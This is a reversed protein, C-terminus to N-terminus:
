KEFLKKFIGVMCAVVISNGALKYQQSNSIGAAQITDIDMREKRIAKAVKGMFEGVEGVLNLSMYAFNESSETCTTIAQKQYENLTM